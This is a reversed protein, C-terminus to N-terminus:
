IYAKKLLRIRELVLEWMRYVELLDEKLGEELEVILCSSHFACAVYECAICRKRIVQPVNGRTVRFRRKNRCYKIHQAKVIDILACTLEENTGKSLPANTDDM